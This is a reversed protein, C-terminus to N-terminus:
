WCLHNAKKHLGNEVFVSRPEPELLFSGTAAPPPPQPIATCNAWLLSSGSNQSDFGYIGPQQKTNERFVVPLTQRFVFACASSWFWSSFQGGPRQTNPCPTEHTLVLFEGCHFSNPTQLGLYSSSTVVARSNKESKLLFVKVPVLSCVWHQSRWCLLQPALAQREM